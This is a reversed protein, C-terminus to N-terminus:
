IVDVHPAPMVFRGGSERFSQEKELITDRYNWALLLSIDPYPDRFTSPDRVPIHMGPSYTGQKAPTTDIIYEVTEPGINCYNLLVNGKASAGYGVISYGQEAFEDLLKTLQKRRQKVKERFEDYVVLSDLGLTEELAFLDKVYDSTARDNESRQAYIRITGGHVDLREVDFVEMGFQSFLEALPGLAFYSIHEHYITDFKVDNLLEVLYPVEIVFIGDEELLTEVGRMVDHLDDVHGLVNNAIISSATGYEDRVSEAAQEGFFETLVNLDHRERATEAVNKAPEVGVTRVSDSFQHLMVGDNCGVEVVLDDTTLYRKEVTKAYDGFHEVIPESASSFYSYNEFLLSRRVTHKLQVHNCAECVVVELPYTTEEGSPSELFSNVPPVEGLDLFEHLSGSGCIRCSAITRYDNGM